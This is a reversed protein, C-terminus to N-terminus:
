LHGTAVTSPGIERKLPVGALVPEIPRVSACACIVHIIYHVVLVDSFPPKRTGHRCVMGAAEVGM